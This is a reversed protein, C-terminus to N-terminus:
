KWRVQCGEQWEGEKGGASGEGEGAAGEITLALPRTYKPKTLHSQVCM